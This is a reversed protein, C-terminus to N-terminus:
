ATRAAPSFASYKTDIGCIHSKLWFGLFSFFEDTLDGSADFRVKHKQMQDLLSKHILKHRSLEPFGIKGMYAEEDSFHKVTISVLENLARSLQSSNARADHLEHLRNMSAIIKKHDADMPGIHLSYKQPDWVFLNGM